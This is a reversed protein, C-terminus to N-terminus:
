ARPPRLIGDLTPPIPQQAAQVCTRGIPSVALLDPNILVTVPFAPKGLSCPSTCNNPCGRLPAGSETGGAAKTALAKAQCCSPHLPAAAPKALQAAMIARPAGELGCRCWPLVQNPLALAVVALIACARGGNRLFQV